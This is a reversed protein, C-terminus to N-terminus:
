QCKDKRQPKGQRTTADRKGERERDLEEAEQKGIRTMNRKMTDSEQREARFKWRVAVENVTRNKSRRSRKSTKDTCEGVHQKRKRDRRKVKKRDITGETGAKDTRKKNQWSDDPM